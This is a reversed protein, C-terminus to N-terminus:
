DRAQRGRRVRGYAKRLPAVVRFTKTNLLAEYQRRYAEAEATSSDNTSAASELQRQRLADIEQHLLATRVEEDHLQDSLETVRQALGAVALSGDNLAAKVVYQYSEAEPDEMVTEVISQDVCERDVPLESQFVPIVVRSTEIMVLGADAIMQRLSELTFFHVHTRDLLGTSRYPFEGRLLTLRVDVHAINPVSIVVFGSPKLLRVAAQLTELPRRLHELVDGFTVADFQEGELDAWLTGADLDGVVVREAWQSAVVAADGDIEIGVVSCGQETLAKTFYGTACGVELIRKNHGVLQIALSHSNNTAYPDVTTEYIFAM